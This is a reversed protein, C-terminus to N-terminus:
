MTVDSNKFCKFLVGIVLQKGRYGVLELFDLLGITLVKTPQFTRGSAKPPVSSFFVKSFSIFLALLFCLQRGQDHMVVWMCPEKGAYGHGEGLVQSRKWSDM